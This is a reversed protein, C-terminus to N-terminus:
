ADHDLGGSVINAAGRQTKVVMGDRVPILCAQQNPNGDIDVLCEFCVGMLCYPGRPIGSVSTKRCSAVGNGLLAAALSDGEVCRMAQADFTINVAPPQPKGPPLVRKFM